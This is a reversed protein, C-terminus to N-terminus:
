SGSSAAGRRGSAASAAWRSAVAGAGAPGGAATGLVASIVPVEGLLGVSREFGDVGPFVVFGRRKASTVSGGAGDILNILPMKYHHALDEIYGGQGGKRRQAGFSTGGRVTFDEGGIAVPRGEIRATGAVYTAPTLKKLKLDDDYEGTGALTGIERFSGKDTVSEIRERVTLRGAKHQRAINESGGMEAAFARRRALEDIQDAWLGKGDELKRDPM